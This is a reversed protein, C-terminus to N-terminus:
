VHARGIEAGADLLRKAIVANGSETALYLPTAGLRTSAKPDAGAKLLSDVLELNDWHVAWHLATAGDPQVAKVDARKQILSKVTSFDRQMAADAVSSDVGAGFAAIPLATLLVVSWLRIKM